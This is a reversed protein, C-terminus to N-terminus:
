SWEQQPDNTQDEVARYPEGTQFGADVTGQSAPFSARGPLVNKRSPVYKTRRVAEVEYWTHELDHTIYGRRGATDVDVWTQFKGGIFIVDGVRPQNNEGLPRTQDIKDPCVACQLDYIPIALTFRTEKTAGYETAERDSNREMVIVNIQVPDRFNWQEEVRDASEPRVPLSPEGYLPDGSPGPRQREYQDKLVYYQSAIGHVRAYESAWIHQLANQGECHFSPKVYEGQYAFEIKDGCDDSGPTTM